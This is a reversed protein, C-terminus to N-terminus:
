LKSSMRRDRFSSLSLQGPQSAQLLRNVWMLSLGDATLRACSLFTRRDFVLTRSSHSAVSWSVAERLRMLSEFMLKTRLRYHIKANTIYHSIQFKPLSAPVKFSRSRGYRVVKQLNSKTSSFSSLGTSDAAFLLYGTTQLNRAYIRLTLSGYGPNLTVGNNSTSYRLRYLISVHKSCVM